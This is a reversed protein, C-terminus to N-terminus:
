QHPLTNPEPVKTTLILMFRNQFPEKPVITTLLSTPLQKLYGVLVSRHCDMM